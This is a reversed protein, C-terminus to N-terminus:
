QKGKVTMVAAPYNKALWAGLKEEAEALFEKSPFEIKIVGKNGAVFSVNREEDGVASPAKLGYAVTNVIDAQQCMALAVEGDEVYNHVSVTNDLIKAKIGMPTNIDLDTRKVVVLERGQTEVIVVNELGSAAAAELTKNGSIVVNNKDVLISRGLGTESISKGLLSMGFPSGKNVNHDDFHLEKITGSKTKAM